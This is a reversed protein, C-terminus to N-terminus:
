RGERIVPANAADAEGKSDATLYFREAVSEPIPFDTATESSRPVRRGIDCQLSSRMAM